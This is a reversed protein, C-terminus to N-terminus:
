YWTSKRVMQIAVCQVTAAAFSHGSVSVSIAVGATPWLVWFNHRKVRASISVLEGAPCAGEGSVWGRISVTAAFVWSRAAYCEYGTRNVPPRLTFRFRGSIPSVPAFGTM